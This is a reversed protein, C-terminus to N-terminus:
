GGFLEKARALRGRVDVHFPCNRECAGCDICDSVHADLAAYHQRALEDGANALDFFRNVNGIDIGAPCPQCHNCYICAGELGRNPLGGLFSYDRQEPPTDEYRLTEELDAVSRFGCLCSLVAPRDLAYQLCQPITMASGFPSTRADLLQGGGYPKMVTIAIGKQQCERYLNMREANLALVGQRPELDYAANISLMFVDVLGTDILKKCIAPTHSAFGVYRVAGAQKMRLVYDMTGGHLVQELEGDDDICHILGIDAYDTGFRRLQDEFALRVKEANRTRAYVGGPYSIGFHIQMLMDSRRGQLAKAIPAIATDDNMVTDMITIGRDMATSIIRQIEAVPAERLYGAGIGITSVKEGQPLQRYEM